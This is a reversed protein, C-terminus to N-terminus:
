WKAVWKRFLIVERICCGRHIIKGIVVTLIAAVYVLMYQVIAVNFLVWKTNGWLYMFEM